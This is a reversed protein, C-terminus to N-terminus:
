EAKLKNYILKRKKDFFTKHCVDCDNYKCKNSEMAKPDVCYSRNVDELLYVYNDVIARIGDNVEEITKKKLTYNVENKM